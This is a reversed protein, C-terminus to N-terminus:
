VPRRRTAFVGTAILGIATLGILLVSEAALMQARSPPTLGLQVFRYLDDPDRGLSEATAYADSVTLVRGDGDIAADSVYYVGPVSTDVPVAAGDRWTDFAVQLALLILLSVLVSIVLTPLSRGVVIGILASASFAVLGRGLLLVPAMDIGAPSNDTDAIPGLSASLGASASALPIALLLLAMVGTTCVGILWTRRRAIVSWAFTATSQEIETAVLSTGLIAGALLPLTVLGLRLYLVWGLWSSLDQTTRSCDDGSLCTRLVDNDHAVSIAAVVAVVCIAVGAALLIALELRLRRFGLRLPVLM